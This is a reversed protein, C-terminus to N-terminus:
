VKGKNCGDLLQRAVEWLEKAEKSDLIKIMKTQTSIARPSRPERSVQDSYFAISILCQKNDRIPLGM